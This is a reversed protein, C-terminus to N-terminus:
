DLKVQVKHMLRRLRSNRFHGFAIIASGLVTLLLEGYEGLLEHEVMGTGIIIMLGVCSILVVLYNRHHMFGIVLAIVSLPLIGFLIWQHFSEHELAVLALSPSLVLFVPLALCHLVCVFSLSIAAKDTFTQLKMITNFTSVQIQHLLTPQAKGM